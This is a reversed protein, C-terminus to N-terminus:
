KSKIQVEGSESITLDHKKNNARAKIRYFVKGNEVRKEVKNDFQANPLAKNMADVINQPLAALEMKKRIEVMSGDQSISVRIGAGEINWRYAIRTGDSDFEIQKEAEGLQLDPANKKFAEAVEKPIEDPAVREKIEGDMTGKKPDVDIQAQIQKGNRSLKLRYESDGDPIDTKCTAETISADPLYKKVADVVDKPVADPSLTEFMENGKIVAGSNQAVVQEQVPVVYVPEKNKLYIAAGIGAFLLLVVAVLIKKTKPTTKM